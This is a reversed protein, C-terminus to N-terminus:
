GKIAGLLQRVKGSARNQTYQDALSRMEMKHKEQSQQLEQDHKEKKMKLEEVAKAHNIEAMPDAGESQELEEAQQQEEPPQEQEAQMQEKQMDMQEESQEMEMGQQQLQQEAQEKQLKDMGNKLQQFPENLSPDIIFDYAPNNLAEKDNMFYYRFESYKLYRAVSQHFVPSTPISGGIPFPDSRESDQWIKSFTGSTQLEEKYMNLDAEKTNEGVGVPSLLFINKAQPFSGFAIKQVTRFQQELLIVLGNEQSQVIDDQNTSGSSGLVPQNPDLSGFGIEHPSILFSSTLISILRTQLNVYEMDKTTAQLPVFELKVPGSIVPITASNDNRAVYNSFDKRFSEVDEKSLYDGEQTQLNVVGKTGLGKTFANQLYLQSHYNMLVANYALEVPSLPYGRLGELAQKQFYDLVIEDETFFSVNKGKIRQVYAVPQENKRLKNYEEADIAADKDVDIDSGTLRVARGEIVRYLTEVPIPRWLLPIGDTNKIVHTAARGFTLINRTQASLFESLSCQKFTDDSDSFVYNLIDENQTGCHLIWETLKEALETRFEVETQKEEPPINSDEQVPIIEKLLFGRSYKNRSKKGFSRAQNVRTNIILSIISDYGCIDRLEKDSLRAGKRVTNDGSTNKESNVDFIVKTKNIEGHLNAPIERPKVSKELEEAEPFSSVLRKNRNFSFSERLKEFM